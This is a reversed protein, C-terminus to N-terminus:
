EATTKTKCNKPLLDENVGNTDSAKCGWTGSNNRTLSFSKGSILSSVSASASTKFTFTIAGSAGSVGTGQDVFAIDGLQMGIPAGLDEHTGVVPFKGNEVTHAEVNTKLGSLTILASAVEAKAVYKQYQPIAVASLVGIVAVVIMLEILTFGKQGQRQKM